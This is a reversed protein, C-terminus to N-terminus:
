RRARWSGITIRFRDQAFVWGRARLVFEDLADLPQDDDAPAAELWGSSAM